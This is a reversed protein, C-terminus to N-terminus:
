GREGVLRLRKKVLVREDRVSRSSNRSSQRSRAPHDVDGHHSRGSHSASTLACVVAVVRMTRGSSSAPRASRRMRRVPSLRACVKRLRILSAHRPATSAAAQVATRHAAYGGLTACRSAVARAAPCDGRRRRRPDAVRDERRLPRGLDALDGGVCSSPWRMTPCGRKPRSTEDGSSARRTRRRLDDREDCVCTQADGTSRLPRDRPSRESRRDAFPSTTLPSKAFGVDRVTKLRVTGGRRSRRTARLARERRCRRRRRPHATPASSAKLSSSTSTDSSSAAWRGARASRSWAPPASPWPRCKPRRRIPPRSRVLAASDRM